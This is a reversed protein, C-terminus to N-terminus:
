RRSWNHFWAGLALLAVGLPVMVITPVAWQGAGDLLLIGGLLCVGRVINFWGHVPPVDNRPTEYDLPHLPPQKDPDSM